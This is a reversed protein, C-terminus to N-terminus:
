LRCSEVWEALKKKSAEEEAKEEPTKKRERGELEERYKEWGNARIFVAAQIIAAHQAGTLGGWKASASILADDIAKSDENQEHWLPNCDPREDFWRLVFELGNRCCEEYGGGFGSIEGMEPTWVRESM